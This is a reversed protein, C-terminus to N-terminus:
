IVQDIALNSIFLLTKETEQRWYSCAQLNQRFTLTSALDFSINRESFINKRNTYSPMSFKKVVILLKITVVVSCM